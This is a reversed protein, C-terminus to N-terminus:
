AMAGPAAIQASARGAHTPRADPLPERLQLAVTVIGRALRYCRGRCVPSAAHRDALIERALHRDDGAGATADAGGAR